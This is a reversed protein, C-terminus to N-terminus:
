PSQSSLITINIIMFISAAALYHLMSKWDFQFLAPDFFNIASYAAALSLVYQSANFVRKYLPQESAVKGFIILGSIAVATLTVGLPFLILSSLFIAYSVTVYGGKPLAVPLSESAIALIGFVIVHILQINSWDTHIINWGLVITASATVLAFFLKFKKPLNEM